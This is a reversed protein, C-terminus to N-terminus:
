QHQIFTFSIVFISVHMDNDNKCLTCRNEFKLNVCGDAQIIAHLVSAFLSLIMWSKIVVHVIFLAM